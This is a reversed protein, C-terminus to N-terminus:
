EITVALSGVGEVSCTIVDGRRVPGLGTPTGMYLLDGPMITVYRSLRSIAEDVPLIMSSVCDDQRVTGNVSLTLRGSCLVGASRKRSRFLAPHEEHLWAACVLPSLVAGEDPGKALDIPLGASQLQLQLDRRTMDIGVGYGVVMEPVKDPSVNKVGKGCGPGIAVVLEVEHQFSETLPPYHVRLKTPNIRDFQHVDTVISDTPKTFFYPFGKKIVCGQEKAMGVYNQGLCYIRRVPFLAKTEKGIFPVVTQPVNFLLSRSM